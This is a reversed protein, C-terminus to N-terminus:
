VAHGVAFQDAPAGKFVDPNLGGRAVGAAGQARGQRGPVDPVSLLALHRIGPHVVHGAGVQPRLEPGIVDEPHGPAMPGRILVVGVEIIQDPVHRGEQGLPLHHAPELTPHLPPGPGQAVAADQPVGPVRLHM